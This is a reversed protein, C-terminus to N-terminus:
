GVKYYQEGGTFNNKMRWIKKAKYSKVKSYYYQDNSIISIM